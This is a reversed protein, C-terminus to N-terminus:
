IVHKGKKRIQDALTGHGLVDDFVIVDAWNVHKKWDSVKHEIIGDGIQARVEEEIFYKVQHGESQVSKAVDTILGSISVFLFKKPHSTEKIEHNM